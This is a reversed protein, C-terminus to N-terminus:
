RAAFGASRLQGRGPQADSRRDGPHPARRALPSGGHKPVASSSSASIINKALDISQRIDSERDASIVLPRPTRHRPHAPRISGTSCANARISDRRWVPKMSRTALLSWQAAARGGVKGLNGHRGRRVFSGASRDLIDEGEVSPAARRTRSPAGASGGPYIMAEVVGDARAQAVLTSNM